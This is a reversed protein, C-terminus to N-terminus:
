PYNMTLLITLVHLMHLVKFDLTVLIYIYVCKFRLALYAVRVTIVTVGATTNNPKPVMNFHKKIKGAVSLQHQNECMRDDQSLASVTGGCILEGSVTQSYCMCKLVSLYLRVNVWPHDLVQLATYRQDVEVQLMCTILAQLSLIYFSLILNIKRELVRFSQKPVSVKASDSVNDWYSLPFDLQGM